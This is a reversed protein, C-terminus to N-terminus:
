DGYTRNSMLKQMDKYFREFIEIKLYCFDGEASTNFTVSKPFRLHQTVYLIVVSVISAIAQM